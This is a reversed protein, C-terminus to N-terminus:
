EERAAAALLRRSQRTWVALLVIGVVILGMSLGVWLGVVGWGAFFCLSYGVPLGLLWHGLLNTVMPTRTDGLGRLVGTAVGQLGDFLQFMAAVALLSVGLAVVARNSTFVHVLPVPILLFAAAACSMFSVGLLLATWGSRRAGMQDRRGVAHGVRVAGASGVGLPVMFTLGALTLVIQHAALSAEDVRGALVTVASFVGLELTVQAAAPLGLRFLRRIGATDFRWSVGFLGLHGRRNHVLIALLLVAAMYIRSILTAVASGRTGLAPLGLHGFVLLWNVCANILNASILAFTVAAVLGMAQLYRRFAAYLLLPVLSWTLVSFYPVALRLVGPPLGWYKLSWNTAAGVLLMPPAAIASLYLGDILARHCSVLDRAGYAQSVLTDLGLLLGMGFIALTGFLATGIGVAGIAEPGLRGVIATDVFGMAMWGIEALVVPGALALMPRIEQRLARFARALRSPTPTLDPM